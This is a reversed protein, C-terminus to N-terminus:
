AYTSHHKKSKNLQPFFYVPTNIQEYIYLYTKKQLFFLIKNKIKVFKPYEAHGSVIIFSQKSSKIFINKIM